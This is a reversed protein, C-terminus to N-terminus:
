GHHEAAAAAGKKAMASRLLDAQTAGEASFVGGM